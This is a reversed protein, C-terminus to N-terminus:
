YVELTFDRFNATNNKGVLISPKNMSRGKGMKSASAAYTM